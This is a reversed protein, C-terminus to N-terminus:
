FDPACPALSAQVSLGLCHHLGSVASARCVGSALAAFVGVHHATLGAVKAQAQLCALPRHHCSAQAQSHTHWATPKVQQMAFGVDPTIHQEICLEYGGKGDCCGSSRGFSLTCWPFQAGKYGFVTAQANAAAMGEFRFETM